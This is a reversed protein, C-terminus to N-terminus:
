NVIMVVLMAVTITGVLIKPIPITTLVIPSRRRADGNVLLGFSASEKENLGVVMSTDQEVLPSFVIISNWVFLLLKQKVFYDPM